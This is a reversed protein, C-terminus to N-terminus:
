RRGRAREFKRGEARVRPATHSGKQGPYLGFFRNAERSRPGRLLLVGKGTPALQALQDFTYCSGKNETIRRRAESTFRLAVVRLGEPVKLLRNDNTVSGVVAVIRKFKNDQYQPNRDNSLHKVIRSISIPFRTLRSQNLRKHIIKNFKADTRRSLFSYLNILSKLYANSSKTKRFGRNAIRGGRILDIGM